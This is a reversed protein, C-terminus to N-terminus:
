FAPKPREHATIVQSLMSDFAADQADAPPSQLLLDKEPTMAWDNTAAGAAAAPMRPVAAGAGHYGIAEAQKEAEQMTDATISQGLPMPRIQQQLPQERQQMQYQLQQQVQQRQQVLYSDEQAVPQGDAQQLQQQQQQEPQQPPPQQWQQPPEVVSPQQVQQAAASDIKRQAERRISSGFIKAVEVPEQFVAPAANGVLDSPRSPAPGLSALTAKLSMVQPPLLCVLKLSRLPLVICPLKIVVFSLPWRCDLVSLVALHTMVKAKLAQHEVSGPPARSYDAM